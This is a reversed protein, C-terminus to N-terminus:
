YYAGARARARPAWFGERTTSPMTSPMTTPLVSGTANYNAKAKQAMAGAGIGTNGIGPASGVFPEFTGFTTSTFIIVVLLVSLWVIKTNVTRKM